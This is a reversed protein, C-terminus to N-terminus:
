QFRLDVQNAAIGDARIALKVLGRGALERPLRINVQDLGFFQSHAGSFLVEAAVGDVSAT